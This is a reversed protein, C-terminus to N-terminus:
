EEENKICFVGSVMAITGYYDNPIFEILLYTHNLRMYNIWKEKKEEFVDRNTLFLDKWYAKFRMDKCAVGPATNYHWSNGVSDSFVIRCEWYFTKRQDLNIEHPKKRFIIDDIVCDKLIGVWHGNLESIKDTSLYELLKNRHVNNTLPNKIMSPLHSSTDVKYVENRNASIDIKIDAETVAFIDWQNKGDINLQHEPLSPIIVWGSEQKEINRAIVAYGDDQRTTEALSLVLLKAM